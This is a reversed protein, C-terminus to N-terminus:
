LPHEVLLSAALLLCTRNINVEATGATSRRVPASLQATSEDALLARADAEIEANLRLLAAERRALADDSSASM